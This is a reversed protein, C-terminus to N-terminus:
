HCMSRRPRRNSSTQSIMGNTTLSYIMLYRPQWTPYNGQDRDHNRCTDIWGFKTTTTATTATLFRERNHLRLYTTPM